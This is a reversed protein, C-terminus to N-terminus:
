DTPNSAHDIKWLERLEQWVDPQVIHDILADLEPLLPVPPGCIADIRSLYSM